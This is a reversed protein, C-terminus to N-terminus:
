GYETLLLDVFTDFAYGREKSKVSVRSLKASSFAVNVFHKTSLSIRFTNMRHM